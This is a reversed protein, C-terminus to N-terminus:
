DTRDGTETLILDLAIDPILAQVESPPVPINWDARVMKTDPAWRRLVLPAARAELGRSLNQGIKDLVYARGAQGLEERLRSATDM